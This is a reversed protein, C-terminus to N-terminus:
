PYDHAVLVFLFFGVLGFLLPSFFDEVYGSVPFFFWLIIGKGPYRYHSFEGDRPVEILQKKCPSLLQFYKTIYIDSCVIFLFHLVHFNCSLSIKYRLHLFQTSQLRFLTNTITMVVVNCFSILVVMILMTYFPLVLMYSINGHLYDSIFMIRWSLLLVFLDIKKRKFHVQLCRFTGDVNWM